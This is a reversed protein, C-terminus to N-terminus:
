NIRVSGGQIRNVGNACTLVYEGRVIIKGAPTLTLSAKGCRVVLRKDRTPIAAIGAGLPAGKRGSRVLLWGVFSSLVGVVHAWFNYQTVESLIGATGTAAGMLRFFVFGGGLCGYILLYRAIREQYFARTDEASRNTLSV